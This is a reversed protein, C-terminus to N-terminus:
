NDLGTEFFDVIEWLKNDLECFDRLTDEADCEDQLSKKMDEESLNQLKVLAALISQQREQIQKYTQDADM